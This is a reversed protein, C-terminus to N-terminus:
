KLVVEQTDVMRAYKEKFLNKDFEDFGKLMRMKEEVTLYEMSPLFFHKDEKEIHCSYLEILRDIAGTIATVAGYDGGCFNRRAEDLQDTIDRAIEHEAFLERMTKQHESSLPKAALEKFYIDEEKGHHCRDVYNRMFDVASVLFDADPMGKGKVRGSENTLLWIMREILRHEIMLVAVPLM